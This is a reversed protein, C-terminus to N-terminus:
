GFREIVKGLMNKHAEFALTLKATEKALKRANKAVSKPISPNIEGKQAAETFKSLAETLERATKTWEDGCKLIQDVRSKMETRLRGTLFDGIVSM